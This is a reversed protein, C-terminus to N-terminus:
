VAPTRLSAALFGYHLRLSPKCIRQCWKHAHSVPVKPNTPFLDLLFQTPGSLISPTRRSRQETLIVAGSHRKLSLSEAKSSNSSPMRTSSPFTSSRAKDLKPGAEEGAVLYNTKRSVSGSVKGGASEIRAKADDRTLTPLTGTLVFTLGALTTGIM